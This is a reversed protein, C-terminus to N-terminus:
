AVPPPGGTGNSNLCATAPGGKPLATSEALRQCAQRRHVILRYAAYALLGFISGAAICLYLIIRIPNEGAREFDAIALDIRGKRLFANARNRYARPYNPQLRIARNFDAIAKDPDGSAMYVCGRTNYAHPFDPRLELARNLDALPNGTGDYKSYFAYARNNYAEAFDPKLQIARTYESIAKDYERAALHSDGRDLLAKPGDEQETLMGGSDALGGALSLLLFLGISQAVSLCPGAFRLEKEGGAQIAFVDRTPCASFCFRFVPM